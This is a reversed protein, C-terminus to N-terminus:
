LKFHLCCLVVQSSYRREDQVALYHQQQQQENNRYVATSRVLVATIGYTSLYYSFGSVFDKM